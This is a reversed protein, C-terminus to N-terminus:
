FNVVWNFEISNSIYEAELQRLFELKNTNLM